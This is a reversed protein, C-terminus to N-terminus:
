SRTQNTIAKEAEACEVALSPILECVAEVDGAKAVREIDAAQTSIGTLGLSSAVGKLAHALERVGDCDGDDTMRQLRTSISGYDSAFKVLLPMIVDDPLGM